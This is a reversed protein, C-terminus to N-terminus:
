AKQPDTTASSSAPDSGHEAFMRQAAELDDPTKLALTEVGPLGRKALGVLTGAPPLEILGTVGMSALTEMCRDWRVPSSVQKVLRELLEPGSGVPAGDANSLVAISPDAPKLGAALEELAAVASSMHHTHFAGAVKLPIVRAKAPPDASLAALQELTGAAVVQGAGNANAATLGHRELVTLVEDQDGGLVATMGTPTAASAEAMGRSRERVFAMAGAETLAGALAVATIEGVSHGATVSVTEAPGAPLLVAAAALGAGVILPQAVATDKITEADSTTGHAVLDLGGAESLSELRERFAPVEIWPALFGPTQSGQGPCVIALV